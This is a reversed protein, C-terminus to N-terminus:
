QPCFSHQSSRHAAIKDSSGNAAANSDQRPAVGVECQREIAHDPDEGRAFLWLETGPRTSRDFYAAAWCKPVETASTPITSLTHAHESQSKHQTRYVLNISYPLASKLAKQLISSTHSHEYVEMRYNAALLLRYRLISSHSPRSQFM